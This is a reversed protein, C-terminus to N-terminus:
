GESLAVQTHSGAPLAIRSLLLCALGFLIAGMWLPSGAMVHDYALGAWLPGLAAVLGNVAAVVGALQGQDAPKVLGSAITGIVSFIPSLILIHFIQIPFLPWYLPCAFILIYGLAAGGLSIMGSGKVGFTAILRRLLTVQSIAMGIGTLFFFLGITWPQAKFKDIVFLGLTSNIGDFTFNFLMSVALILAIGPKRAMDGITMFPNFDRVQLAARERKEVPLSEPLFFYILAVSLLAVVGAAFLPANLNFQGLFGGVAPGIIFGLGYSMGIMGFNKTREEPTSVDAIYASATSMNGGTIGDILRALFLIWLAGGLGFIFYGLASGAVSVLLVPRRGVRDSIKGLAPAAFFMAGAYIVTLLTVNLANDSYQKVIYPAVPGLISMGIVDMLMILFVINLARKPSSAKLNSKEKFM